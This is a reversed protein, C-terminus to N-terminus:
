RGSGVKEELRRLVAKPQLELFSREDIELAEKKELLEDEIKVAERMYEAAKKLNGSHENIEALYYYSNGVRGKYQGSEKFRISTKIAAQFAEAAEQAKGLQLLSMGLMENACILEELDEGQREGMLALVNRFQFVARKYNKHVYEYKALQYSESEAYDYEGMASAVVIFKAAEQVYSSYPAWFRLDGVMEEQMKLRDLNSVHAKEAKAIAQYYLAIGKETEQHNLLDSAKKQTEQWDTQNNAWYWGAGITGATLICSVLSPIVWMPLVKHLGPSRLNKAVPSLWTILEFTIFEKVRDQIQDQEEVDTVHVVTRDHLRETTVSIKFQGDEEKVSLIDYDGQPGVVTYNFPLTRQKGLEQAAKFLAILEDAGRHPLKKCPELEVESLITSLQNSVFLATVSAAKKFDDLDAEQTDGRTKITVRITKESLEVAIELTHSPAVEYITKIPAHKPDTLRKM